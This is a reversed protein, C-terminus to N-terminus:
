RRRVIKSAVFAFLGLVLGSILGVVPGTLLMMVRPHAALPMTAMMEVEKPHREMYTSALAVHVGTVWISNVLSVAVGHLFYKGPARKAILYACILFVLLWGIPEINSPIVYVTGIAMALGFLSLQLILKWNV